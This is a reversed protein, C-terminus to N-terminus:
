ECGFGAHSNRTYLHFPGVEVHTVKGEFRKARLAELESPEWFPMWLPGSLHGVPMLYQKYKSEDPYHAVLSQEIHPEPLLPGAGDAIYRLGPVNCYHLVQM